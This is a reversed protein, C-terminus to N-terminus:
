LILTIRELVLFSLMIFPFSEISLLGPEEWCSFLLLEKGPFGKAGGEGKGRKVL